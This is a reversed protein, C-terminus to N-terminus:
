RRVTSPVGQRSEVHADLWDIVRTVYDVFADFERVGHGERPYIVLESAVGNESLARYFELAQEPPTCRDQGGAVLLTPTAVDRAFTMPSRSFHPGRVDHPDPGVFRLDFQPDSATYHCSFLDTVPAVAIAAAFRSTQTVMWAAMYGGHSAGMIALRGPDAIGDSVLMDLGTLIDHREEGGMDGRELRTFPQGRGVSGRSNPHFVAYGRRVLLPTLQYFMQWSDTFAWVPGGHVAVLMPHPGGGQPQAVYGQIELGDRARWTVPTLDGAGQLVRRTGENAFDHLVTRENAPSFRVLKPPVRYSHAVTVYERDGAPAAGPYRRLWSERAAYLVEASARAPDFEGAVAEFGRLGAFTCREGRRALATVDADVDVKRSRWGANRDLVVIEGAVVTRDSCCGEVIAAYRGDETAIPIGIEEAPEYITAIRLTDLAIFILRANHWAGERPDDSVIAIVGDRGCWAAEWFTLDGLPLRRATGDGPAYMWLSRWGSRETSEVHPMWAPSDRHAQAIRGSGQAGARDAGAEVTQMLIRNGDPAWEIAEISERLEEAHASIERAVPDYFHLAGRGSRDGIYALRGACPSWRPFSGDLSGSGLAANEGADFILVRQKPLGELPEYLTGAVAIFREDPSIQVDAADALSGANARHIREFHARLERYLSAKRADRKM